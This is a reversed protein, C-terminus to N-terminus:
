VAEQYVRCSVVNSGDRYNTTDAVNGSLTFDTDAAVTNNSDLTEWEDSDRNYIQLYITSWGAAVNSRLECDVDISAEATYEKYQHIAYEGTATQCVRVDDSEGVDTVDQGSYNTELDTDDGPLAAV